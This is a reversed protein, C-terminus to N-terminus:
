ELGGALSIRKIPDRIEQIEMEGKLFVVQSRPIMIERVQMEAVTMAGEIISLAEVDLLNREQASRLTELLQRRSTPELIFVQSLRELWGLQEEDDSM